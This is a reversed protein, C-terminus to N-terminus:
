RGEALDAALVRAAAPTLSDGNVGVQAPGPGSPDDLREPRVTFGGVREVRGNHVVLGDRTASLRDCDVCWPPCTPGTTTAVNVPPDLRGATVHAAALASPAREACYRALAVKALLAQGLQEAADVTLPIETDSGVTEVVLPVSLRGDADMEAAALIFPGHGTDVETVVSTHVECGLPHACFAPHLEAAWKVPIGGTRATEPIPARGIANTSM